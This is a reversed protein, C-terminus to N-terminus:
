ELLPKPANEFKKYKGLLRGIFYTIPMIVKKVFGPLEPMDYESKYRVLLYAGDFAEPRDSGSKNQAKYLTDLFFIISNVPKIWGSLVLEDEGDNWFRHPINRKFTITEGATHHTPEEGLIQASLTGKVITFSEDQKFHVHMAPGAKPKCYIDLLVMDGDADHVIEKFVIKEGLHSEITYPLKYNISM